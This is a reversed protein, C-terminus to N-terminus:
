TCLIYKCVASVTSCLQAGVFPVLIRHVHFKNDYYETNQEIYNEFPLMIQEIYGCVTVIDTISIQETDDWVTITGGACHYKNV